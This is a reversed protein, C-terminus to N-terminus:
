GLGLLNARGRRGGRLSRILSPCRRWACTTLRLSRADRAPRFQSPRSSASARPHCISPAPSLVLFRILSYARTPRVSRDAEKATSTTREVITYPPCEQGGGKGNINNKRVIALTPATPCGNWRRSQVPIPNWM